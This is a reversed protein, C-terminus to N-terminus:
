LRDNRQLVCECHSPFRFLHKITNGSRDLSLLIREIYKQRCRSIFGNPLSNAFLCKSESQACLEVRVSQVFLDNNLIYNWHKDVSLAIKPYIVAKNSNCYSIDNDDIDELATNIRQSLKHPVIGYEDNILQEYNEINKEVLSQVRIYETPYNDVNECYTLGIRSCNPANAIGTQPLFNDNNNIDIYKNNTKNNDDEIYDYYEQSNLQNEQSNEPFIIDVDRRYRIKKLNEEKAAHKSNRHHHGNTKNEDIRKSTIEIFYQKGYQSSVAGSIASRKRKYNLMNRNENKAISVRTGVIEVREDVRADKAAYTTLSTHLVLEKNRAKTSNYEMITSPRGHMEIIFVFTQLLVTIFAKNM